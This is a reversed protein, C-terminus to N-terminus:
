APRPPRWRGSEPDFKVPNFTKKLDEYAKQVRRLGSEKRPVLAEDEACISWSEVIGWQSYPGWHMLLGFKLGQWKELQQLVLPDTEPYYKQLYEQAPSNSLAIGLLLLWLSIRKMGIKFLTGRTKACM